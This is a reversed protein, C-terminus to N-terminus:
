RITDCLAYDGIISGIIFIALIIGSIAEFFDVLSGDGEGLGVVASLIASGFLIMWFFLHFMWYEMRRSRGSFDAYRRYPMLLWEM